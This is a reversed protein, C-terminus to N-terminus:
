VFWMTDQIDNNLIILKTKIDELTILEEQDKDNESESLGDDSHDFEYAHSAYTALHAYHVPVPISVSKSCRADTHCLWYTLQQIDDSSFGNEDHLVHYLVPRSTG